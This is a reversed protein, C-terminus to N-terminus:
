DSVELTLELIVPIGLPLTKVGFVSRVAAGIGQHAPVIVRKRSTAV